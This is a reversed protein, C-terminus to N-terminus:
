EATIGAEKVVKAWKIIESRIHSAFQEPTTPAADVGQEALRRQTDPINLVKVLDANLKALLPKPVAAPACMGQWSTVEYGPMGSEAITSVDPLQPHRKASTIGLARVKGTKILNLSAPLNSFLAPV